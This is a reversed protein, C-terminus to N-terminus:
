IIFIDFYVTVKRYIYESEENSLGLILILIASRNSGRFPANQAIQWAFRAMKLSRGGGVGREGEKM